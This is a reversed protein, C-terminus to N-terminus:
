RLSVQVICGWRMSVPVGGVVVCAVVRPARLPGWLAFPHGGPGIGGGVPDGLVGDPVACLGRDLALPKLGVTLYFAM